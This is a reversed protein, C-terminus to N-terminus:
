GLSNLASAAEAAGVSLNITVIQGSRTRAILEGAPASSTPPSSTIADVDGAEIHRELEALTWGDRVTFIPGAQLPAGASAPRMVFLAVAVIGVAAALLTVGAATRPRRRAAAAGRPPLRRAATALRRLRTM